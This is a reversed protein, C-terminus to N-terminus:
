IPLFMIRIFSVIQQPISLDQVQTSREALEAIRATEAAGETFSAGDLGFLMVM